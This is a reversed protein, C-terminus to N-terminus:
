AVADIVDEVWAAEELEWLRQDLDQQRQRRTRPRTTCDTQLMCELSYFTSYQPIGADAFASTIERMQDRELETNRPGLAESLCWGLRGRRTIRCVAPADPNDWVYIACAGADVQRRYTALCNKFEKALAYIDATADVRRANGIQLPPLTQPLPLESVLTKLRAVFQAPQVHASLDTVLAEFSEAAGRYTLWRLGNPLHDLREFSEIFRALGALAPRLEVPIEYLVQIMSDSIETEDFHHLLKAMDPDNLLKILRLYGPRSLVKPPLRRLVRKIGIPVRGVARHLVERFSSEFLVAAIQPGPNGDFHALALAIVHMRPKDLEFVRTLLAPETKIMAALPQAAWGLPTFLYGPTLHKIQGLAVASSVDIQVNM